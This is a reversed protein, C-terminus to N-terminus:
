WMHIRPRRGHFNHEVGGGVWAQVHFVHEGGRSGSGTKRNIIALKKTLAEKKEGNGGANKGRTRLENSHKTRDLITNAVRLGCICHDGWKGKLPVRGKRELGQNTFDKLQISRGKKKGVGKECGGGM